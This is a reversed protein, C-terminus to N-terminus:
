LAHMFGHNTLCIRRVLFCFQRPSAVRTPQGILPCFRLNLVVAYRLQDRCFATIDVVSFCREPGTSPRGTWCVAWVEIKGVVVHM